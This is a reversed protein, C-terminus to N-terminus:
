KKAGKVDISDSTKIKKDPSPDTNQVASKGRKLPETKQAKAKTTVEPKKPEDKKSVSRTKREM